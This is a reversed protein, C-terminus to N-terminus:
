WLSYQPGDGELVFNLTTTLEPVSGPFQHWYQLTFRTLEELIEQRNTDYRICLTGEYLSGM